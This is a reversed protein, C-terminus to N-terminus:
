KKPNMNYSVLVYVTAIGVVAYIVRSVFSMYGFIWAVLDFNFLGVLGRNLGGIILLIWAVKKLNKM